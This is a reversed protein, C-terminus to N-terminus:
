AKLLQARREASLVAYRAPQASPGLGRFGPGDCDVIPSNASIWSAKSAVTAVLWPRGSAVVGIWRSQHSEIWAPYDDVPTIAWDVDLLLVLLRGGQDYRAAWGVPADRNARGGLLAPAIVIGNPAGPKVNHVNNGRRECGGVQICVAAAAALLQVVAFYRKM